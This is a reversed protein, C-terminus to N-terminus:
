VTELITAIISVGSGVAGWVAGTYGTLVFDTGLPVVYGQGLSFSGFSVELPAAKSLLRIRLDVRSARTSVIQASTSTVGVQSAFITASM